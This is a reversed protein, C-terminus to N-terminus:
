HNGRYYAIIKSFSASMKQQETKMDAAYKPIHTAMSTSVKDLADADLQIADAVQIAFGHAKIDSYKIHLNTTLNQAVTV